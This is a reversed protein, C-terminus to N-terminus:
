RAFPMGIRYAELIGYPALLNSLMAVVIGSEPILILVARGGEITGAHHYFLRGESDAGIRWGIGVETAADEPLTSNRTFLLDLTDQTFFGPKLHASGFRVLDEASALYGGSAWKYSSDIYPAHQLPKGPAPREYFGARDPIVAAVHDPVINHLGLPEFINGQMWSLFEEGSAGEIVASILNWGYSSYYYDTGPEFRLPDDQFIALAEEVSAFHPNNKLPKPGANDEPGYHRIGATHAALQRTSIDWQKVPFDPVYQQIPADLDLKGQEVLKAIAAATLVKAVSGTRFLSEASVPVDLEVNAKGFGESYVLVGDRAVAVSLGPIEMATVLEQAIARAEAVATADETAPNPFPYLRRFVIASSDEPLLTFTVNWNAIRGVLGAQTVEGAFPFVQGLAALEFRVGSSGANEVVTMELAEGGNLSAASNDFDVRLKGPGNELSGEWIGSVEQAYGCFAFLAMCLAMMVRITKM